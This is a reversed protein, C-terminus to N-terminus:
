SLLWHFLNCDTRESLLINQSQLCLILFIQLHWYSFFWSPRNFSFFTAFFTHLVGQFIPPLSFSHENEKYIYLSVLPFVCFFRLCHNSTPIPIHPSPLHCVSLPPLSKNCIKECEQIKQSCSYIVQIKKKKKKLM